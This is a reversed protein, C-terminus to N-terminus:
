SFLFREIPKFVRISKLEKEDVWCFDIVEKNDLSVSPKKDLVVEYLYIHDKKYEHTSLILKKFFVKEQRLHIGVEESTERIAALLFSENKEVMGCPITWYDKYSNKILLIKNQYKVICYAGYFKPRFFFCYLLHLRYLIKYIPIM